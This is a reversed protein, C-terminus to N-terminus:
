ASLHICHEFGQRVFAPSLQEILQVPVVPLCEPFQAPVKVHRSLRHGFVEPQELRRIQDGDGPAPAFLQMVEIWHRDVLDGLAPNAFVFAMAKLRQTIQFLTEFFVFVPFSSMM